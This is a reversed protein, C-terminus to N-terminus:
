STALEDRNVLIALQTRTRVELRRLVATLHSKVTAQSLFLRRAIEDNSLGQAVLVAVDRQRGTLRDLPGSGAPAAGDRVSDDSLYRVLRGAVAADLAAEDRALARVADVLRQAALRRSLYGRVGARLVKVLEPDPPAAVDALVLVATGRQSLERVLPLGGEVLAQRVVVIQVSDHDAAAIAAPLDHVEGVVALDPQADLVVRLGLRYLEQDECLLIRVLSVLPRAPLPHPAPRGGGRPEPVRLPSGGAAPGPPRDDVHARGAPRAGAPQPVVVGYRSM